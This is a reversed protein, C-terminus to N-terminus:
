ASRGNNMEDGPMEVHLGARAHAAIRRAACRGCCKVADSPADPRHAITMDCDPCEVEIWDPAHRVQGCPIIDVYAINRM